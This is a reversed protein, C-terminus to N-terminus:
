RIARARALSVPRARKFRSIASEIQARQRYKIKPFRRYMQRRYKTKAWRRDGRKNLAIITSRIGLQERAFAHNHEADYGADALLRDIPLQRSVEELLTRNLTEQARLFQSPASVIGTGLLCFCAVLCRPM